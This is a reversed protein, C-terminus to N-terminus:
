EGGKELLLQASHNDTILVNSFNGNLAGYVGEVKDLGGAVLISYEKESLDSLTVGITREDLERNCIKGTHDFIRSCVDGVGGQAKLEELDEKTYYGANFLTSQYNIDGVTYIAINSQRGLDLVRRIHRDSMIANAVVPHDVIAPLPLFYPVTNFASSLFNLIESAYTNTKSYSVGGNLQVVSVGKVNKPEVYKAVEYLTTGWTTGIIDGDQVIRGIFEAAVKGLEKKITEEEHVPVSVIICDKLNYKAKLLESLKGKSESPDNITVQVIGKEKAQQLMRSVSPRSIGFQEAIKQQSMDFQYYLKAIEILKSIKEDNM